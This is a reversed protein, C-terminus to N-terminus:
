VFEPDAGHICQMHIPYFRMHRSWLRCQFESAISKSGFCAEGHQWDARNIANPQKEAHEDTNRLIRAVTATLIQVNPGTLQSPPGSAPVNASCSIVKPICHSPVVCAAAGECRIPDQPLGTSDARQLTCSLHNCAPSILEKAGTSLTTLSIHSLTTM